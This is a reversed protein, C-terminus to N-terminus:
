EQGGRAVFRALIMWRGLEGLGQSNPKEADDTSKKDCGQEQDLPMQSDLEQAWRALRETLGKPDSLEKSKHRNVLQQIAAVRADQGLGTVVRAREYLEYAFRSALRETAFHGVMEDFLTNMSEWHSRVHVTEGSRKLVSVGLAAKNPVRKAIQKEAHRAQTLAADLPDLHQAIAIGASITFPIRKGDRVPLAEEPWGEFAERYAEKLKQAIDMVYQLPVLALVDDGGGYVLFGEPPLVIEKRARKTFKALRESLECHQTENKCARIHEGMGDGDMVLLAYYPSPASPRIKSKNAESYLTELTAVVERPQQPPKGYSAELREPAYTERYVLDGDFEFGRAFEKM